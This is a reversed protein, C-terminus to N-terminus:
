LMVVLTQDGDIQVRDTTENGISDALQDDIGAVAAQHDRYRQGWGHFGSRGIKERNREIERIIGLRHIGHCETEIWFEGSDIVSTDVEIGFRDLCDIKEFNASGKDM